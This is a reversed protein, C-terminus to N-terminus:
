FGVHAGCFAMDAKGGIAVTSQTKRSDVKGPSEGCAAASSASTLGIPATPYNPAKPANLDSPPASGGESGM